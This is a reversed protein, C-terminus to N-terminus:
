ANLVESSDFIDTGTNSHFGLSKVLTPSEELEEALRIPSFVKIEKYLFICILVETKFNVRNQARYDTFHNAPISVEGITESLHEENECIIRTHEVVSEAIEPLGVM